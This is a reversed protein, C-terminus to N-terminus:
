PVTGQGGIWCFVLQQQGTIAFLNVSGTLLQIYRALADIQQDNFKERHAKMKTEPVGERIVKQIDVLTGGDRWVHDVLNLKPVFANGDSEHCASCHEEFAESAFDLMEGELAKAQSGSIASDNVVETPNSATPISSEARAGFEGTPSFLYGLLFAFTFPSASRM